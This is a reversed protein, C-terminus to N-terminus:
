SIEEEDVLLFHIQDTHKSLVPDKQVRSRVKELMSEDTTVFLLVDLVGTEWDERLNKIEQREDSLGIEVGVIQSKGYGVVDVRKKAPGLTREIHVEFGKSRLLSAVYRAVSQHTTGGVGEGAPARLGLYEYARRYLHVRRLKGKVELRILGNTRLENLVREKVSGSSVGLASWHQELTQGRHTPEATYRLFRDADRSLHLTTDRADPKTWEAAVLVSDRSVDAPLHRHVVVGELDALSPIHVPSEPPHSM